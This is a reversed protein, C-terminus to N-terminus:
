NGNIIKNIQKFLKKFIHKFNFINSLKVGYDVKIKLQSNINKEISNKPLNKM